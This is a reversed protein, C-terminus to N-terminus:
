YISKKCKKLALYAKNLMLVTVKKSHYTPQLFCMTNM